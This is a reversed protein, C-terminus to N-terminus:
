RRAPAPNGTTYDFFYNNTAGNADDGMTKSSVDHFQEFGGDADTEVLGELHKMEAISVQGKGVAPIVLALQVKCGGTELDEALCLTIQVLGGGVGSFITHGDDM